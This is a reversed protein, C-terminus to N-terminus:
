IIVVRVQKPVESSGQTTEGHQCVIKEMQVQARSLLKSGRCLFGKGEGDRGILLVDRQFAPHKQASKGRQLVDHGYPLPDPHPNTIM